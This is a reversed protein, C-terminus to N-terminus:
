PLFPIALIDEKELPGPFEMFKVNIINPMAILIFPPKEEQLKLIKAIQQAVKNHVHFKYPKFNNNIFKIVKPDSMNYNMERSDPLSDYFYILAPASNLTNAFVDSKWERWKIESPVDASNREPQIEIEPTFEQIAQIPQPTSACGALLALM